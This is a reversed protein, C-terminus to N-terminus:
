FLNRWSDVVTKALDEKKALAKLVTEDITGEVVLHIYTCPHKQGIARIDAIIAQALDTDSWDLIPGGAIALYHGRRATEVVGAYAATITGKEDLHARRVIQKGRSSHFEYFDWSQLFNSEPHSKVYDDWQSRSTIDVIKM